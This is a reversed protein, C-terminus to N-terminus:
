PADDVDVCSAAFAREAGDADAGRGDVSSAAARGGVVNASRHIIDHVSSSTVKRPSSGYPSQAPFM